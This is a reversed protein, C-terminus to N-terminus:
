PASVVHFQLDELNSLDLIPRGIRLAERAYIWGASHRMDHLGESTGSDDPDDWYTRTDDLAPASTAFVMYCVRAFGPDRKWRAAEVDQKFIRENLVPVVLNHTNFYAETM